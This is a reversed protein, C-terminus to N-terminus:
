GGLETVPVFVIGRAEAEEIWKELAAITGRLTSAVGIAAGDERARAELTDLAARISAESRARDVVVVGKAYPVDERLALRELVSRATPQNEFVFLDREALAAMIPQAAGEVANFRAGLYSAAGTATPIRALAEELRDLNTAVPDAVRLTLPGPDRRKNVPEMPIEVLVTHGDEAAQRSLATAEERIPAFALTVGEPLVDIAFRTVDTSLGAATVVLAIRPADAPPAAPAPEFPAPDPATAELPEAPPAEDPTVDEPLADLPVEEVVEDPARRIIPAPAPLPEPGPLLVIETGREPRPLPLLTAMPPATNPFAQPESAAEDIPAEAPEAEDAEEAAPPLVPPPPPPALMAVDIDREPMMGDDAVDAETEEAPDVAPTDGAEAVQGEPGDAEAADTGDEPESAPDAAAVDGEEESPPSVANEDEPLDRAGDGDEPRGLSPLGALGPGGAGEDPLLPEDPDAAPPDLPEDAIAQDLVRDILDDPTTADETVPESAPEADPESPAVPVSEVRPEAEEAAAPDPADRDPTAPAPAPAALIRDIERESPVEGAAAVRAAAPRADFAARAVFPSAVAGLAMLGVIADTATFRPM